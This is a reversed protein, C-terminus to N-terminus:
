AQTSDINQKDSSVTCTVLKLKDHRICTNTLITQAHNKVFTPHIILIHFYYIHLMNRETNGPKMNSQM